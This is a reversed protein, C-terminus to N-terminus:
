DSEHHNMGREEESRRSAGESFWTVEVVPDKVTFYMLMYVSSSAICQHNIMYM